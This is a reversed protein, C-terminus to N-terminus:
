VKALPPHSPRAASERPSLPESPTRAPAVGRSSSASSAIRFPATLPQSSISRDSMVPSGEGRGEGRPLPRAILTVQGHMKKTSHSICTCTVVGRPAVRHAPLWRRLIEVLADPEVPKNVYDDMGAESLREAEDDFTDASMAIVPLTATGPNAKIRRAAEIGGMGPMQLDMLVLDFRTTGLLELAQSGSSAATVGVGNARLIETAVERCIWDDDVLLVHARGNSSDGAAPPVESAVM